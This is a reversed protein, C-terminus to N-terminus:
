DNGRYNELVVYETENMGYPINDDDSFIPFLGLFTGVCKVVQGNKFQHGTKNATVKVYEGEKAKREVEGVKKTEKAEELLRDVVVAVGVEFDFTDSPHCKAMTKKIVKGNEKLVGYVNKIGDTTIHIEKQKKGYFPKLTGEFLSSIDCWGFPHSGVIVDFYIRDESVKNIQIVVKRGDLDIGVYKQGVKYKNM